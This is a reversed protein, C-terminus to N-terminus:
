DDIEVEYNYLADYLKDPIQERFYDAVIKINKEKYYKYIKFAKEQTDYIGLYKRKSKGTKPNIMHCRVMYKGDVPSTGIASDGRDNQRKTFLKNIAQPVIVCTEPSYIKNGKFLIDKDLCMVEGEIEYYNEEYWRAFNQFNLWEDCVTCNKYTPQKKHYEKDYCRKLMDYWTNYIRTNKGNEWAKYEGNGFYGVGYVSREYPCKVGGDKFKQYTVSKYVWDYEPFYVDVDMCGRYDVIVMESGFNNLRKEGTRDTTKRSM